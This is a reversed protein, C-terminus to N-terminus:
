YVEVGQNKVICDLFQMFDLEGVVCKHNELDLVLSEKHCLTDGECKLFRKIWTKAIPVIAESQRLMLEVVTNNDSYGEKNKLLPIKSSIYKVLLHSPNIEQLLNMLLYISSLLPTASSSTKLTPEINDTNSLKCITSLVVMVKQEQPNYESWALSSKHSKLLSDLMRCSIICIKHLLKPYTPPINYDSSIPYLFLLYYLSSMWSYNSTQVIKSILKLEEISEPSLLEDLLISNDKKTAVTNESPKISTDANSKSWTEVEMQIIQKLASVDIKNSIHDEKLESSDLKNKIGQMKENYKAKLSNEFYELTAINMSQGINKIEVLSILIVCFDVAIAAEKETSFTGIPIDKFTASYIGDTELAVGLYVSENVSSPIDVEMEVEVSEKQKKQTNAASDPDPEFYDELGEIKHDGLNWTPVHCKAGAMTEDDNGEDCSRSRKKNRDSTKKSMPSKVPVTKIHLLGYGDKIHDVSLLTGLLENPIKMQPAIKVRYHNTAHMWLWDGALEYASQRLRKWYAVDRTTTHTQDSLVNNLMEKIHLIQYPSGFLRIYECLNGFVAASLNELIQKETESMLKVEQMLGPLTTILIIGEAKAAIQAM